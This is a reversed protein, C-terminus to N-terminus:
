VNPNINYYVAFLRRLEIKRKITLAICVITNYLALLWIYLNSDTTLDLPLFVIIGIIAAIAIHIGNKYMIQFYQDKYEGPTM